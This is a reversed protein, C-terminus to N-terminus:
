ADRGSMFVRVPDVHVSLDEFEEYGFAILVGESDGFGEGRTDRFIRL